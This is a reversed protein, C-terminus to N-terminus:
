ITIVPIPKTICGFEDGFGELFVLSYTRFFVTVPLYFVQSLYNFLIILVIIGVAFLAWFAPWKIALAAVGILIAGPMAVICCLGFMPICMLMFAGLTLGIKLLLYLLFQIKNARLIRLFIKWAEIIRIRRLYMIPVVFDVALVGIIALIIILSIFAIGLAVFGLIIWLSFGKALGAFILLTVPIGIILLIGLFASPAFIIRWLFLSWGPAGNEKYAQKIMVEKKITGDLFVFTFRSGFYLFVLWVIIILLAILAGIIIVLTLNALVWQSAQNFVPNSETIIARDGRDGPMNFNFNSGQGTGLAMLFAVLGFKLWKVLKFPRFLVAIMHKFAPTIADIVSITPQRTSFDTM